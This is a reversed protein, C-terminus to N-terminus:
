DALYYTRGGVPTGEFPGGTDSFMYSFFDRKSELYSAKPLTYEISYKKSKKESLKIGRCTTFMMHCCGEALEEAYIKAPKTLSLCQEFMDAYCFRELKKAPLEPAEKLEFCFAFMGSYCAGELTTAPLKPAAILHDCDMFMNSYCNIALVTADLAPPFILSRCNIFMGMYCKEALVTAPLQPATVLGFCGRFMQYYCEPALNTAPLNPAETLSGCGEFMAFYCGKALTKAPLEPAEILKDCEDFMVSYCKEALVTAPLKPPYVIGSNAFMGAYCRKTLVKSPLYLETADEVPCYWFVDAFAEEGMIPEEGIEVMGYDLLSLINGSLKIKTGIKCDYFIRDGGEEIEIGNCYTNGKGRLYLKGNKSKVYTREQCHIDHWNVNDVSYELKGDFPREYFMVSFDSNAEYLVYPVKEYDEMFIERGEKKCLM